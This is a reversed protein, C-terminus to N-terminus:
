VEAPDDPDEVVERPADHPWWGEVDTGADVTVDDGDARLVFVAPDDDTYLEDFGDGDSDLPFLHAHDDHIVIGARHAAVLRGNTVSVVEDPVTDGRDLYYDPALPPELGDCDFDAEDIEPETM